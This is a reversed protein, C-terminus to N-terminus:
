PFTAGARQDNWIEEISDEEIFAATLNSQPDLDVALVRKRLRAFM